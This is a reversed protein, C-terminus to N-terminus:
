FERTHLIQQFCGPIVTTPAPNRLSIPQDPVKRRRFIAKDAGFDPYHCRRIEAGFQTLGAGVGLIM